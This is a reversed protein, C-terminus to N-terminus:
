NENAPEESRSANIARRKMAKLASSFHSRKRGTKLNYNHGPAKVGIPPQPRPAPGNMKDAVEHALTNSNRGFPDYSLNARNINDAVRDFQQGIADLNADGRYIETTAIVFSRADFSTTTFDGGEAVLDGYGGSSGSSGFINFAEAYGGLYKPQAEANEDDYAVLFSHYYDNFARSYRIEVVTEMGSPDTANLPDNAVYAYLNMNDAYGIPDTQLFRGLYPDYIRAKYYYLSLGTLDIQGTYAFRGQIQSAPVGYPSYTNNYASDGASDSTAIVSGQHDTHYFIEASLGSGDYWILPNDIGSGHLSRAPRWAIM